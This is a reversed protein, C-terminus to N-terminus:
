VGRTIIPQSLIGEKCLCYQYSWADNTSRWSNPGFWIEKEDCLHVQGFSNRRHGYLTLTVIHKGKTLKFRANYPPLFIKKGAGSDISVTQCVGRYRGSHIEITEDETEIPIMYEINGGYFPFMQSTIDGFAIKDPIKTLVARKGVIKVGFNGLLYMWEVNTRMGFPLTVELTNEGTRIGSVAVKEISKDVYYGVVKNEVRTGNLILEAVRADELALEAASIDIESYIKFRLRITHSSGQNKIVWPQAVADCRLPWGMEKRCENSFGTRIHLHAGGFGM